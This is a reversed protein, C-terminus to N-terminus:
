EAEIIGVFALLWDSASYSFHCLWQEVGLLYIKEKILRKNHNIKWVQTMTIRNLWCRWIDCRDHPHILCKHAYLSFRKSSSMFFPLLFVCLQQIQHVFLPSFVNLHSFVFVKCYRCHFILILQSAKTVANIICYTMMWLRLTHERTAPAAATNWFLFVAIYKIM